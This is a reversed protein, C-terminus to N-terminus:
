NDLNAEIRKKFSNITRDFDFFFNNRERENVISILSSNSIQRDLIQLTDKVYLPNNTELYNMINHTIYLGEIEKGKFYFTADSNITENLFMEFQNGQAPAQTGYM